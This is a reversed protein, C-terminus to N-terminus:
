LRIIIIGNITNIKIIPSSHSLLLFHRYKIADLSVQFQNISRIISVIIQVRANM